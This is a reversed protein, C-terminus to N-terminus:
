RSRDATTTAGVRSKRTGNKMDELRRQAATLRPNFPQPDLIAAFFADRNKGTLEIVDHERIVQQMKEVAASIIFNSLTVGTLDAARQFQSKLEAPVRQELRDDKGESGRQAATTAHIRKM